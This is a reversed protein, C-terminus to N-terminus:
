FKRQEAQMKAREKQVALETLQSQSEMIKDFNQDEHAKKLNEKVALEQAEIRASIEKLQTDELTSYRKEVVSLKKKSCGKTM